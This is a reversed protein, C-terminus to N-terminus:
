KKAEKGLKEIRRWLANQVTKQLGGVLLADRCQKDDFEHVMDIRSQADVKGIPHGNYTGTQFPNNKSKNM